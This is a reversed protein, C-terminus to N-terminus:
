GRKVNRLTAVVNDVPDNELMAATAAISTREAEAALCEVLYGLDAPKCLDINNEASHFLGSLARLAGTLRQLDSEIALPDSIM